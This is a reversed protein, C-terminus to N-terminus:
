HAPGVVTDDGGGVAPHQGSPYGASGQDHQRTTVVQLAGFRGPGQRMDDLFEEPLARASSRRQQLDRNTGGLDVVRGAAASGCGLRALFALMGSRRKSPRTAMM